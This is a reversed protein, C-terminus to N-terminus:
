WWPKNSFILAHTRYLWFLALFDLLLTCNHTKVGLKELNLYNLISCDGGGLRCTNRSNKTSFFANWKEFLASCAPVARLLHNFYARIVYKAYESKHSILCIIGISYFSFKSWSFLFNFLFAFTNLLLKNDFGENHILIKCTLVWFRWKEMFMIKLNKSIFQWCTRFLRGVALAVPM